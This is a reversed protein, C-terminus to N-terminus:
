SRFTVPRKKQSVRYEFNGGHDGGPGQCRRIITTLTLLKIHNPKNGAQSSVVGTDGQDCPWLQTEDSWAGSVVQCQVSQVPINNCLIFYNLYGALSSWWVKLSYSIRRGRGQWLLYSILLRSVHFTGDNYFVILLTRDNDNLPKWSLKFVFDLFNRTYSITVLSSSSGLLSRTRQGSWLLGPCHGTDRWKIGIVALHSSTGSVGDVYKRFQCILWDGFNHLVFDKAIFRDFVHTGLERLVIFYLGQSLLYNFQM